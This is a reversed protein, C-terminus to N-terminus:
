CGCGILLGLVDLVDIIPAGFDNGVSAAVAEGIELRVTNFRCPGCGGVWIQALAPSTVLPQACELFIGWPLHVGHTYHLAACHFPIYHLTNYHIYQRNTQRGTQRAPKAPSPGLAQAEGPRDTERDTQRYICTHRCGFICEHNCTKSRFYIAFDAELCGIVFKLCRFRVTPLLLVYTRDM